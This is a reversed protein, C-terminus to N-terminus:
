GCTMDATRSANSEIRRAMTIPEEKERDLRDSHVTIAPATTKTQLLIADIPQAEFVLWGHRAGCEIMGNCIFSRALAFQCNLGAHYFSTM